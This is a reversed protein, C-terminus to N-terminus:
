PLQEWTFVDGASRRVAESVYIQGPPANQMLRASLNVADGLCTFTQRQQHGCTGSRLRGYTIGVQIGTVAAVSGLERLELAAAAARAADDEHALPPGFVACLYAGKDGLTLHLLNGGYTAF